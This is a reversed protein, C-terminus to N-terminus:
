SIVKIFIGMKESFVRGMRKIRRGNDLISIEM